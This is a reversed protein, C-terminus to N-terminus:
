KSKIVTFKYNCKNCYCNIVDSKNFNIELEKNKMEKYENIEKEFKDGKLRRFWYETKSIGYKIHKPILVDSLDIINDSSLSISVHKYSMCHPCIYTIM